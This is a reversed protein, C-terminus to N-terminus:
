PFVSGRDDVFVDTLTYAHQSTCTFETIHM